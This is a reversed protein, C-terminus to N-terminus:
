KVTRYTSASWTAAHRADEPAYARLKWKGTSPLTLSVRYRSYTSYDITKCWVTKKLVWVGTLLNKRYCYLKVAKNWGPSHRPKLTGYVVFAVDEKITLPAVPAGLYVKPKVVVVLSESPGYEDAGAWAARFKYARTLPPTTATGGDSAVTAFTTWTIGDLSKQVKVLYGPLATGIADTLHVTLTTTGNYPVVTAAADLQLLSAAPAAIVTFGEVSTATGGPTTVAITGSGAGTPVTATIQTASHVHFAASTDNFKVSTAGSLGTGTVSVSTGVPGSTPTFGTITPTPIVTFIAASTGTGGPTTVAITGTTAGAPVTATIQTASDLNYSASVGNFEVCSADGFATGTLTVSTAVPGSTPVFSAITPAAPVLTFTSEKHPTEENGAIDM